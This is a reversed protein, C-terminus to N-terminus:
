HVTRVSLSHPMRLAIAAVLLSIGADILFVGTIGTTAFFLSALIPGATQGARLVLLYVSNTLARHAVLAQENVMRIISPLNLGRGLGLFTAGLLIGWLEGSLAVLLYAPIYLSFGTAVIRTAPLHQGLKRTSLASIASILAAYAVILGIDKPGLEFRNRLLVPIYTLLSGTLLAFNIFELFLLAFMSKQIGKLMTKLSHHGTKGYERVMIDAADLLKLSALALPVAALALLFPARWSYEAMAGGIAPLIATAMTQVFGFLATANLLSKGQFQEGLITLSFVSVAGAGCGTVLRLALLQGHNEAFSCLTGALAVLLLTPILVARRGFRDGLYGALPAVFLGQCFFRATSEALQLFLFTSLM